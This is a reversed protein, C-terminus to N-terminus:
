RSNRRWRKPREPLDPINNISHILRKTKVRNHHDFRGGM